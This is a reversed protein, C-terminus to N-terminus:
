FFGGFLGSAKKENAERLKRAAAYFDESETNLREVREALNSLKDGRQQLAEVNQHMSSRASEARGMLAGQKRGDGAGDAASGHASSRRGAAAAAKGFLESRAAAERDEDRGRPAGEPARTRDTPPPQRASNPRFLEAVTAPGIRAAAAASAGARERPARADTSASPPTPTAPHAASSLWGLLGKVSQVGQSVSQMGLQSLAAKRPPPRQPMPVGRVVLSIDDGACLADTWTPAAEGAPEAAGPALAVVVVERGDIAVTLSGDHASWSLPHVAGLGEAAAGRLAAARPSLAALAPTLRLSANLLPRLDPLGLVLLEHLGDVVPQSLTLLVHAGGVRAVAASLLPSPLATEALKAHSLPQLLRVRQEGVHVLASFGREDALGSAKRSCAPPEAVARSEASAASPPESEAAPQQRQARADRSGAADAEGVAAASPIHLLSLHCLPTPQKPAYLSLLELGPLALTAVHGDALGVFLLGGRGDACGEEPGRAGAGGAAASGASRGHTPQLRAAAAADLLALSVVLPAGPCSEGLHAVAHAVLEAPRGAAKRVLSCSVSGCADGVCVLLQSPHASGGDGEEAAAAAYGGSGDLSAGIIIAATIRGPHCGALEPPTCSILCVSDDARAASLPQAGGRGHASLPAGATAATIAATAAAPAAEVAAASPAAAGALARAPSAAAAPDAVSSVVLAARQGAGESPRAPTASVVSDVLFGLVEAVIAETSGQSAGGDDGRGGSAAAAPAAAGGDSTPLECQASGERAGSSGSAHEAGEEAGREEEEKEEDEGQGAPPLPPPLPPLPLPEGAAGEGTRGHASEAAAAAPATATAAGTASGAASGAAAHAACHALAELWLLEVAGDARGAVVLGGGFPALLEVASGCAERARLTGDATRVACARLPLLGRTAADRLLVRGDADAAVLLQEAHVARLEGGRMPWPGFPNAGERLCKRLRAHPGGLRCVATLPADTAFVSPWGLPAVGTQTLSYLLLAGEASLVVVSTPRHVGGNLLVGGGALAFSRVACPAGAARASLGGTFILRESWREGRLLVLADPEAELLTGGLLFLAPVASPAGGDAPSASAPANGWYVSRIPRRVGGAAPAATLTLQPRGPAEVAWVALTADHFGVVFQRGSSHWCLCTPAPEQGGAEGLGGRSFTCVPARRLLDVLAISGEAWAVLLLEEQLPSAALAVVASSKLAHPAVHEHSLTYSCFAAPTGGGPLLDVVLVLGVATGVYVFTSGIPAHLCTVVDHANLRASARRASLDWVVIVGGDHASLLIHQNPAFELLNVAGVSGDLGYALLAEVGARGLLKVGGHVSGVALLKQIPDFALVLAGAPLGYHIVRDFLLEGLPCAPPRPAQGLAAKISRLM